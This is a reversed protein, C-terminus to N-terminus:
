ILDAFDDEVKRFYAVGVGAAAVVAATSTALQDWPIPLGLCAARFGGILGTVPNAWMLVSMVGASDAPPQMYVTPTAFMWFQVLFPIVYRFDRYRVNLAALGTGFAFGALGITMAIPVALLVGPGPVVGYWVMLVALVGVAVCFDVAAVGVAAIPIALRPFYIKTVLREAGVVSNGATSVATAFFMWPLLGALAFLPYPLGASPMGALRGFFVTFVAMMMVPQLVAWAVGLVTQRYRVKVDRWIFFFLLERFRWLEGLDPLRWGVPPAIRTLPPDGRTEAPGDPQPPPADAPRAPSGRPGAAPPAALTTDTQAM